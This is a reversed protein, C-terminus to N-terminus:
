CRPVRVRAIHSGWLPHRVLLRPQVAAGLLTKPMRNPRHHHHRLHSDSKEHRATIESDCQVGVSCVCIGSAKCLTTSSAGASFRTDFSTEIGCAPANCACLSRTGTPFAFSTANTSVPVTKTTRSENTYRRRVITRAERRACSTATLIAFFSLQISTNIKTGYNPMQSGYVFFINRLYGRIRIITCSQVRIAIM